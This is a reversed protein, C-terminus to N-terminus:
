FKPERKETIAAMGERLDKAGNAFDQAQQSAENWLARELGEDLKERITRLTARMAQPATTSFKHALKIGHHMLEDGEHVQHVLGLRLAEESDVLDGALILRSASQPGVLAPLYHTSGMGPHLGLRVFNFGMRAGRAALRVDAALTLCLGAGVATGNICAITPVPLSRICLFRKYFNYLEEKNKSCSTEAIRDRIFNFDGGASFARDKGTIIVAKVSEDNKLQRVFGEFRDGVEVTLANMTKPRNFRIIAIHPHEEARELIVCDGSNQALTTYRRANANTQSKTASARIVKAILGFRSQNM